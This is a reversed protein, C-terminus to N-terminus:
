VYVRAVVKVCASDVGVVCHVGGIATFTDWIIILVCVVLSCCVLGLGYLAVTLTSLCLSCIVLLSTPMLLWSIIVLALLLPSYATANLTILYWEAHRLEPNAQELGLSYLLCSLHALTAVSFLKINLM